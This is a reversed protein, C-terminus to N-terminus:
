PSKKSKSKLHINKVENSLESIDFNGIKPTCPCKQGVHLNTEESKGNKGKIYTHLYTFCARMDWKLAENPLNTLKSATLRVNKM